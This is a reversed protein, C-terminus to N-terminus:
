RRRTRISAAAGRVIMVVHYPTASLVFGFFFAFHRISLLFLRSPVPSHLILLRTYVALVGACM